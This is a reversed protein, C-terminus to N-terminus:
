VYILSTKNEYWGKLWGCLTTYNVNKAIAAEKASEYYVGTQTDLVIKSNPNNGLTKNKMYSNEGSPIKMLGTKFAHITNESATVWELNELRNDDKIGNKHNVFPKNYINELFSNAVARHVRILRRKGGVKLNTQLYGDKDKTAKIIREKVGITACRFKVRRELSKIRGMNSVLYENEAGVLGKWIEEQM